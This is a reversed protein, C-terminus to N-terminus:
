EGVTPLPEDEEGPLPADREAELRELYARELEEVRAQTRAADVDITELREARAQEIQLSFRREPANERAAVQAEIEAISCGLEAGGGINNCANPALSGVNETARVRDAWSRNEPSQGQRLQSPIRYPDEIEECVVITNPDESQPCTGGAPIQVMMIRESDAQAGTNQAAAPLAVLGLAIAAPVTLRTM